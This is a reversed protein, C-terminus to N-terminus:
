EQPGESWMWFILYTWEDDVNGYALPLSRQDELNPLLLSLLDACLPLASSIICGLLFNLLAGLLENLKQSGLERSGLEDVSSGHGNSNLLVLLPVPLLEAVLDLKGLDIFGHFIVVNCVEVGGVGVGLSELGVTSIRGGTGHAIDSLASLGNM